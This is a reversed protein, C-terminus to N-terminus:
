YKMTMRLSKKAAIKKGKKLKKAMLNLRGGDVAGRQPAGHKYAFERGIDM